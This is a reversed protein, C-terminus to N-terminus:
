LWWFLTDRPGRSRDRIPRYLNQSQRQNVRESKRSPSHNTNSSATHRGARKVCAKTNMKPYASTLPNPLNSPCATKIHGMVHLVFHNDPLDGFEGKFRLGRALNTEEGPRMLKTQVNAKLADIVGPSLHGLRQHAIVLGINQGRAQDLMEEIKTDEKIFDSAEDIYAFTPLKPGRYDEHSRDRSAKELLAIFFRGYHHVEDGLAGKNAHVCIVKGIDLQTTLNFTSRYPPRLFPFFARVVFFHLLQTRNKRAGGGGGPKKINFGAEGKPTPQNKGELGKPGTFM